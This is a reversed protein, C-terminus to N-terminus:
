QDQSALRVGAIVGRHDSVSDALTKYEVFELRQSILVWDIRRKLTPFTELDRDDPRYARLKLGEAAARVASHDDSWQCNFDGLVILPHKGDSLRHVMEKVQSRRVEKRAFDLHVSVVQVNTEPRDPWAITAAVFGKSPTPPSPAFTVSFPHDLPLRSLLATGYSLGMADVHKGRFSHQMEAIQSLRKVHDFRGSWLSPGDAEQLAVVHPQERRILEAVKKLNAEIETREQGAQHKDPGRGHAVNLTMVRLTGRPLASPEEAADLVSAASVLATLVTLCVHRM